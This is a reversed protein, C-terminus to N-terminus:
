NNAIIIWNTGDSQVSVYKWQDSLSYTSAGDITESNSTAVTVTSTSSDIKKLTYIRGAIGSASPLTITIAGGSADGTITSDSDTLTYDATKNAIATAIPGAINLKSNPSATGIGVNGSSSVVIRQVNGNTVDVLSISNPDNYAGALEWQQGSSQITTFLLAPTSGSLEETPNSGVVVLPCGPTKTGIGIDRDPTITLINTTTTGDSQDIIFNRYEGGGRKQLRIGYQGVGSYRQNYLDLFEKQGTTYDRYLSLTAEEDSDFSQNPAAITFQTWNHDYSQLYNYGSDRYLTSGEGGSGNDWIIRGTSPIVINGNVGLKAGPNTTGIGVNGSDTVTLLDGATSSSINLANNGATKWIDLKAQPNNTGIGLRYANNDWFLQSNNQSTLGNSESFLVSGSTLGVTCNTGSPSCSPDLTEGPLYPSTPPTARVVTFIMLALMLIIFSIRTFSVKSLQRPNKFVNNFLKPLKM